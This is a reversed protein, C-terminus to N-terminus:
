EGFFLDNRNLKIGLIKERFEVLELSVGHETAVKEATWGLTKAGKIVCRPLLAAAGIWYAETEQTQNWNRITVGNSSLLKTPKHKRNIHVLEEMLSARKRTELHTPNMVVIAGGDPLMLTGASWATSDAALQNLVEKPLDSVHSPDIVKISMRKALELPELRGFTPVGCTKRLGHAQGEVWNIFHAAAMRIENKQQKNICSSL